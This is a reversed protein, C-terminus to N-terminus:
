VDFGDVGSREDGAHLERYDIIARNRSVNMLINKLEQARHSFIVKTLTPVLGRDRSSEQLM